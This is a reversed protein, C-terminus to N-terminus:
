EDEENDMAEVALARKTAGRIKDAPLITSGMVQLAIRSAPTMEEATPQQLINIGVLRAKSDFVPTGPLILFNNNTIALERPETAVASIVGQEVALTRGFFDAGRRVAFIPTGPDTDGADEFDVFAYGEEAPETIRLWTLDLETDKAIVEAEVGEAADGFLIEINSPASRGGGGGELMTHSCLILGDEAIMLGACELEFEMSEGGFGGETRLIYKITVITDDTAETISAYTAVQSAADDAAITESGALAPAALGLAVGLTLSKTLM